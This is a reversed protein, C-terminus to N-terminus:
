YVQRALMGPSYKKRAGSVIVIEDGHVQSFLYGREIKVLTGGSADEDNIRKESQLNMMYQDYARAASPPDAYQVCLLKLREPFPSSIQYDAVVGLKARDFSLSGIYPAPFFRRASVPGM